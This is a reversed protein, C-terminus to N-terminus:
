DDTDAFAIEPRGETLASVLPTHAQFLLSGAVKVLAETLAETEGCDNMIRDYTQADGALAAIILTYAKILDDNSGIVDRLPNATESKGITM